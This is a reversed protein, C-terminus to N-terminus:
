FLDDCLDIVLFLYDTKKLFFYPSVMLQFLAVGDTAADPSVLRSSVVRGSLNMRSAFCVLSYFEAKFVFDFNWM